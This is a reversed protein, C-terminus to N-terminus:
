PYSPSKQLQHVFIMGFFGIQYAALYVTLKAALPDTSLGRMNLFLLLIIPLILIHKWVPLTQIKRQGKSQSADPADKIQVYFPQAILGLGIAVTIWVLDLVTLDNPGKTQISDLFHFQDHLVYAVVAMLLLQFGAVAWPKPSNKVFVYLTIVLWAALLILILIDTLEM